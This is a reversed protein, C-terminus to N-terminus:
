DELKEVTIDLRGGKVKEGRVIKLRNVQSDDHWFGCNTLADLPSKLFNDLDRKANTPGHLVISISVPGAVLEGCLGLEAMHDYVLKRYERGKKTLIMRGRFPTKWANVSPPFPLSFEYSM